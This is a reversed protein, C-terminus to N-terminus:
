SVFYSETIRQKTEEEKTSIIDELVDQKYPQDSYNLNIDIRKKNM